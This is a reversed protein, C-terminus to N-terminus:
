GLIPVEGVGNCRPCVGDRYRAGHCTPCTYVWEVVGSVAPRPHSTNHCIPCETEEGVPNGSGDQAHRATCIDCVIEGEGKCVACLEHIHGAGGCRPCRMMEPGVDLLGAVRTGGGRFPTSPASPGQPPRAPPTFPRSPPPVPLSPRPVSPPAATRVPSVPPPTVVVPAVVPTAEAKAVPASRTLLHILSPVLALAVVFALMLAVLGLKAGENQESEDFFLPDDPPPPATQRPAAQALGRKRAECAGCLFSGFTPAGCEVCAQRREHGFDPSEM